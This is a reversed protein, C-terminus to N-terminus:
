KCINLLDIEEKSPTKGNYNRARQNKGISVGFIQALTTWEEWTGAECWLRLFDCLAAKNPSNSRSKKIWEIRGPGKTSWAIRGPKRPDYDFADLFSQEAEPRSGDIYGEEVLAAFIRRLEEDSKNTNLHPYEPAAEENRAANENSESPIAAAALIARSAVEWAAAETNSLYALWEPFGASLLDFLDRALAPFPQGAHAEVIFRSEQLGALSRAALTRLSAPIIIKGPASHALAARYLRGANKIAAATANLTRLEDATM